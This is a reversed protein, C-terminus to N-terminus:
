RLRCRRRCLGQCLREGTRQRFVALTSAARSFRLRFVCAKGNRRSAFPQHGFGLLRGFLAQEQNTGISANVHPDDKPPSRSSARRFSRAAIRPVVFIVTPKREHTLPAIERGISCIARAPSVGGEFAFSCAPNGGCRSLLGTSVSVISSIASPRPGIVREVVRLVDDPLSVRERSDSRFPSTERCPIQGPQVPYWDILRQLHPM